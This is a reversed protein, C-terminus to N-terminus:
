LVLWLAMHVPHESWHELAGRVGFVAGDRPKCWFEHKHLIASGVIYMNYLTPSLVSGQPMGALMYKPACMKGEVSGSFKCQSFFSSILKILSTFFELEILSCALTGHSILPKEM